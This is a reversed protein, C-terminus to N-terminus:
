NVQLSVRGIDRIRKKSQASKKKFHNELDQQLFDSDNEGTRCINHFIGEDLVSM